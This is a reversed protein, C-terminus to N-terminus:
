YFDQGPERARNRAKGVIEFRHCASRFAQPTKSEGFGHVAFGGERLRQALRTFDSDSTVLCFGDLRERHMMDVADIALAIDAANKGRVHAPQHCPVIAFDRIAASWSALRGNSYDGYIRRVTAEGLAEAAQFVAGVHRPSANEGDILVAVRARGAREPRGNGDCDM